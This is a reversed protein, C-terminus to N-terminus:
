ADLATIPSPFPIVPGACPEDRIEAAQASAMLSVMAFFDPEAEDVEAGAMLAAMAFFSPEPETRPTEHPQSM